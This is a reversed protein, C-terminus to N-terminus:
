FLYGWRAHQVGHRSGYRSIFCSAPFFGAEAVGLLFRLVYFQTPTQVFIMLASLIAWSIMIRAIWFRPGFRQMLLNSPLEFLFYGIFFIGAGVGYVTDSFNLADQMHLKAFGVNVRDLYAFFYCLILFPILRRTIKNYVAAIKKENESTNTIDLATM